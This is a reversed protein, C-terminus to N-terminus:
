SPLAATHATAAGRKHSPTTGIAGEPIQFCTRRCGSGTAYTKRYGGYIGRKHRKANSQPSEIYSQCGRAKADEHLTHFLPESRSQWEDLQPVTYLTGLVKNRVDRCHEELRVMAIELMEEIDAFGGYANHVRELTHWMRRLAGSCLMTPNILREVISILGTMANSLDNITEIRTWVDKRAKTVLIDGLSTKIKGLYVAHDTDRWLVYAFHELFFKEGRSIRMSLVKAIAVAPIQRLATIPSVEARIATVLSKFHETSALSKFDDAGAQLM